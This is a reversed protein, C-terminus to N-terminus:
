HSYLGAINVVPYFYAISNKYRSIIFVYLIFIDGLISLYGIVKWFFFFFLYIFLVIIYSYM